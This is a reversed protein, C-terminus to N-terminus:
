RRVDSAVPLTDSFGGGTLIDTKGALDTPRGPAIRPPPPQGDRAARTMSASPDRM